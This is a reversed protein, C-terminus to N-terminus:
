KQGAVKKKLSAVWGVQFEPEITQALNLAKEYSKYADDSRGLSALIDGLTANVQVSDPALAVAQEAEALAESRKGERMLNEAKQNHSL